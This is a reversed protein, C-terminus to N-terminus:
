SQRSVAVQSDVIGCAGSHGKKESAPLPAPAQIQEPLWLASLFLFAYFMALCVWEWFALQWFMTPRLFECAQVAWRQDALRALRLAGIIVGCVVPSLPIAVWCLALKHCLLGQGGLSPFRDKIAHACCCGMGVAITIASAAALCAHLRGFGALPLASSALLLLGLRFSVGTWRAALRDIARLRQEAYGAFPVALLSAVVVGIAPLWFVGPNDRSSIICSLVHKQWRFPIPFLLIGGTLTGLFTVLSLPLLRTLLTARSVHGIFLKRM